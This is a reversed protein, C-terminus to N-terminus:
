WRESTACHIIACYDNKDTGGPGTLGSRALPEGADEVGREDVGIPPDHLLVAGNGVDERRMPFGVETLKFADGDGLCESLARNHGETATSHEVRLRLGIQTTKGHHLQRHARFCDLRADRAAFAWKQGGTTDFGPRREDGRPLGQVVVYRLQSDVRRM